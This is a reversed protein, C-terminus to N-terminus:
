LNPKRHEEHKLFLFWVFSGALLALFGLGLPDLSPVEATPTPDTKSIAFRDLTEGTDNLFRGELELGDIELILSGLEILSTAMIPHDLDGSPKSGSSGVVSYVTGLHPAAISPPKRYAGSGLPDGSGGDIIMSPLLESSFGYHSDILMSREYNHSHGSLVLDVGGDELIPLSNTRMDFLASGPGGLDSNQSGHSYPPHHWFAIIWQQQTDALDAALWTLMPGGVARDTGHSDLCIFHINAYDFSYYAETGSPMGGSEGLTPLTFNDYHPGTQNISSSTHAEHNGFTAWAPTNRLIEDYMNFVAVQFQDDTGFFYANDGLLLWLDTGAAGVENLYADRVAAARFNATGSDGTIWISLSKSTGPLPPTDVYHDSDGGVLTALTTGVSYFVRSDPSLGSIAIEHDITPVPSSALGTLSVPASGFRVASTTQIDTRWRVVVETPTLRQLYPGRIVQPLRQDDGGIMELDFALDASSTHRHVEVAITNVDTTLLGPDIDVCYFEFEEDAKANYDATDQFGVPGALLNARHIEAGNLYVIASDDRLLKLTLNSYISPNSVAFTHRFYTTAFKNNPDPGFSVVTAEGQRGEYGLQAPGVAWANDDFAPVIWAVGADSGDDLYRWTAGKPVLTDEVAKAPSGGIAITSISVLFTAVAIRLAVFAVRDVSNRIHDLTNVM